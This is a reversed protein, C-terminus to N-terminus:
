GRDLKERLRKRISDELKDAKVVARALMPIKVTVEVDEDRVFIDGGVGVPGKISASNGTWFAKVGKTALYSEFALVRNKAEDAGLNHKEIVRITSM